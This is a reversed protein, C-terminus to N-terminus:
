LRTCIAPYFFLFEVELCKNKRTLQKWVQSCDNLFSTFVHGLNVPHVAGWMQQSDPLDMGFKPVKLAEYRRKLGNGPVKFIILCRRDLKRKVSFVTSLSFGLNVCGSSLFHRKPSSSWLLQPERLGSFYLWLSWAVEPSESTKRASSGFVVPQM